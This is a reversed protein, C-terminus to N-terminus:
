KNSISLLDAHIHNALGQAFYNMILNHEYIFFPKAVPAFLNMWTKTTEVNWEFSIITTNNNESLTFIGIGKLDGESLIQIRKDPIIKDLFLMFHLSYLAFGVTCALKHDNPAKPDKITRISQLGKWWHPWMSYDLLADWVKKKPAAITFITKFLYKKHQIM